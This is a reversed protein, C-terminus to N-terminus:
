GDRLAVETFLEPDAVLLGDPVARVRGAKSWRSMVRIVTETRAGVMAALEQRTLRMPIMVGAGSRKGCRRGLTVLVLALRVEVGGEGLDELRRRLARLRLTLDRIFARAVEPFRDLLQFYDKGSLVLVTTNSQAVASAPFPIDDLLAVEGVADGAHFFDFILERGSELTKYVKVQGSEILFFETSDDGDFFLNEGRRFRRRIMREAVWARVEESTGAFRAVRRLETADIM